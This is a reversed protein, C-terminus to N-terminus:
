YGARSMARRYEETIRDHEVPFRVRSDARSWDISQILMEIRAEYDAVLRERELDRAADRAPPAAEEETEVIAKEEEVQMQIEPVPAAPTSLRPEPKPARVSLAVAGLIIPLSLVVAYWREM